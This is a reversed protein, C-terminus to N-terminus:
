ATTEEVEVPVPVAVLKGFLKKVNPDKPLNAENLGLATQVAEKNKTLGLTDCAKCYVHVFELSKFCVKIYRKNEMDAKNFGTAILNEVEGQVKDILGALRERAEPDVETEKGNKKGSSTSGLYRQFLSNLLKFNEIRLMDSKAGGAARPLALKIFKECHTEFIKSNSKLLNPLVIKFTSNDKHNFINTLMVEAKESILKQLESNNTDKFLRMINIIAHLAHKNASKSGLTAFILGFLADFDERNEKIFKKKLLSDKNTTFFKQIISVIRQGLAKSSTDSHSLAYQLLTTTQPLSSSNASVKDYYKGLFDVLRTKFVRIEDIRQKNNMTKQQMFLSGLMKNSNELDMGSEESMRDSDSDSASM